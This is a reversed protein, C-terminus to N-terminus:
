FIYKIIERIEHVGELQVGLQSDSFCVLHFPIARDPPYICNLNLSVCATGLTLGFSCCEVVAWLYDGEVCDFAKETDLSLMAYTQDQDPAAEAVHLLHRINDSALYGKIFGAQDLHLLSM